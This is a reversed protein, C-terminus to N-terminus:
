TSMASIGGENLNIPEHCDHGNSYEDLVLVGFFYKPCGNYPKFPSEDCILGTM